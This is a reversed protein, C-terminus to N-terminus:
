TDERYSEPPTFVAKGRYLENLYRCKLEMAAKRRVEPPLSDFPILEGAANKVYSETRIEMNRRALM